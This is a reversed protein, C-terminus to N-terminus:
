KEPNNRLPRDFTSDNLQRRIKYYETSQIVIVGGRDAPKIIIGEKKILKKLALQEDRSLNSHLKCEHKHKTVEHFESEDLRCYMSLSPHM